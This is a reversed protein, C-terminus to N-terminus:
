AFCVPPDSRHNIELAYVVRLCYDQMGHKEVDAIGDRVSVKFFDHGLAAHGDVMGRQVPPHHLIRRQDRGCGLGSLARCGLGPPHVLGVDLDFASPGVKVAGNISIAFGKIEQEGLAAVQGSGSPEKLLRDVRVAHWIPNDDVLTAGIQSTQLCRVHDQLEGPFPGEDFDQLDFVQIVNKFLVVAEDLADSRRHQAEFREMAGGGGDGPDLNSVHDSLALEAGNAETRKLM